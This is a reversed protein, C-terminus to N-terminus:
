GANTLPISNIIFSQFFVSLHDTMRSMAHVYPRLVSLSCSSSLGVQSTEFTHIFQFLNYVYRVNNITFIVFLLSITTKKLIKEVVLPTAISIYRISIIHLYM